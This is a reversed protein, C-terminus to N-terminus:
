VFGKEHLKSTTTSTSQSVLDNAEIDTCEAEYLTLYEQAKAQHEQGNMHSYVKYSIHNILAAELFHPLEFEQALVETPELGVYNLPINEAQYVVSLANRTIPEPVQLVLPSPTYVSGFRGPDNLPLKQKLANYVEIVRIVDEKFMNNPLDIIYKYPETSGSHLAYRKKLHYNTIHDYCEILVEKTVLVFRKHIALLAGNVYTILKGQDQERISGSGENSMSLNSLEGVSLQYFLESVKM